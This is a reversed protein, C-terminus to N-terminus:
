VVSVSCCWDSLRLDLARYWEVVDAGLDAVATFVNTCSPPSFDTKNKIKSIEKIYALMRIENSKKIYIYIYIRRISTDVNRTGQTM